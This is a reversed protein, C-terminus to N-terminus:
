GILWNNNQVIVFVAIGSVDIAALGASSGFIRVPYIKLVNYKM